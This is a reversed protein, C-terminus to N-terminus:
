AGQCRGRQERGIVEEGQSGDGLLAQDETTGGTHLGTGQREVVRKGRELGREEKWSAWNRAPKEGASGESCLLEGFGEPWLM